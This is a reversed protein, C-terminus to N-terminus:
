LTMCTTCIPKAYGASDGTEVGSPPWSVLQEVGCGLPLMNLPLLSATHTCLAIWILYATTVTCESKANLRISKYCRNRRTFNAM